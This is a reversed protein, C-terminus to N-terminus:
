IEMIFCVAVNYRKLIPEMVLRKYRTVDEMLLLYEWMSIFAVTQINIFLQKGVPEATIDVVVVAKVRQVM